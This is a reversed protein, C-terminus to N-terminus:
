SVIGGAFARFDTVAGGYEHRVKYRITDYVFVNGVTPQDQVLIEPDERGNLFGMEIGEVDALKSSLYFNNEDGRLYPTVTPDFSDRISNVGREM